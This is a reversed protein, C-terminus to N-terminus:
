HDIYIYYMDIYIYINKDCIHGQLPIISKIKKNKQLMLQNCKEAPIQIRLNVWLM